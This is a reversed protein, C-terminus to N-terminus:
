CFDLGCKAHCAHLHAVPHDPDAHSLLLCVQNAHLMQEHNTNLYVVQELIRTRTELQSKESLLTSVQRTLDDLQKQTTRMKEQLLLMDKGANKHRTAQCLAPRTCALCCAHALGLSHSNYALDNTTCLSRRSAKREPQTAGPLIYRVRLQCYDHQAQLNYMHCRQLFSGSLFCGVCQLHLLVKQRARFKKQAVRNKERHDAPDELGNQSEARELEFAQSDSMGQSQLLGTSYTGSGLRPPSGPSCTSRSQAETAFALPRAISTAEGADLLSALASLGGSSSGPLMGPIPMNRSRLVSAANQFNDRQAFAQGPTVHLLLEEDSFAFPNM